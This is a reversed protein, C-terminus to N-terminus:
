KVCVSRKSYHKKNKRGSSSTTSSAGSSCNSEGARGVSRWSMGQEKSEQKAHDRWNSDLDARDSNTLKAPKAKQQSRNSSTATAAAAAAAAATVATAAAAAAASKKEKGSKREKRSSRWDPDLDARDVGEKHGSTRGAGWFAPRKDFSTTSCSRSSGIKFFVNLM